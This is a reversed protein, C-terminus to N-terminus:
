KNTLPSSDVHVTYMHFHFKLGLKWVPICGLSVTSTPLPYVRGHYIDGFSGHNVYEGKDVCQPDLVYKKALDAFVQVCM